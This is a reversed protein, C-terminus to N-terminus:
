KKEKKKSKKKANKKKAIKKAEQLSEIFKIDGEEWNDWNPNIHDFLVDCAKILGERDKGVYYETQSDLLDMIQQLTLKLM